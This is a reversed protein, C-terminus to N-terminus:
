DCVFVRWQEVNYMVMLMHTLASLTDISFFFSQQWPLSCTVFAGIDFSNSLSSDTIVSQLIYKYIDSYFHTKSSFFTTPLIM